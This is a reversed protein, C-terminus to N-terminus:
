FYNFKKSKEATFSFIKQEFCFQKKWIKKEFLQQSLSINWFIKKGALEILIKKGPTEAIFSKVMTILTM